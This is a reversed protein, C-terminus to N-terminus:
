QQPIERITIAMATAFLERTASVTEEFDEKKTFFEKEFFGYFDDM